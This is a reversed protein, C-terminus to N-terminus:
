NIISFSHDPLERNNPNDLGNIPTILKNVEKTHTGNKSFTLELVDSVGSEESRGGYNNGHAHILQFSKSIEIIASKFKDQLYNIEHFEIVFGVIRDSHNLLEELIGYESGEIDIKLFIKHSDIRSFVKSVSVDIETAMPNLVKEQFHISKRRFFYSYRLPLSVRRFFEACDIKGLLFKPFSGLMKVIYFFLNVSFDYSHIISKPNLRSYQDEFNWDDGIGFSLLCNSQDLDEKCVVYGGDFRSGVRILDDCAAISCHIKLSM